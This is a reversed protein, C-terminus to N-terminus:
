GLVEQLSSVLGVTFGIHSTAGQYCLRQAGGFHQRAIRCVAYSFAEMVFARYFSGGVEWSPTNSYEQTEEYVRVRADERMITDRGKTDQLGIGWVWYM